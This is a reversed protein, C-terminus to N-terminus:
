ILIGTKLNILAAPLPGKKTFVFFPIWKSEKEKTPTAPNSNQFILM